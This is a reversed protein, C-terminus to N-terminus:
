YFINGAFKKNMFMEVNKNLDPLSETDNFIHLDLITTAPLWLM